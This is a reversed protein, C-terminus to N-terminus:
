QSFAEFSEKIRSNEAELSMVWFATKSGLSVSYSNAEGAETYNLELETGSGTFSTQWERGDDLGTISQTSGNFSLSIGTIPEGALNILRTSLGSDSKVAYLFVIRLMENKGHLRDRLWLSYNKVLDPMSDNYYFYTFLGKEEAEIQEFSSKTVYNELAKEYNLSSSISFSYRALTSFYIVLLLATILYYQGKSGLM